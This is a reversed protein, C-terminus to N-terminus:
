PVIGLRYFRDTGIPVNPDTLEIVGGTGAVNKAITTWVPTILNRAAELRYQVLLVSPFSIRCDNGVRDVGTIRLYSAASTLNTRALYEQWDPLGDGDTDDLGLASSADIRGWGFTTNPIQAGPVGGRTQTGALHLASPELFNQM